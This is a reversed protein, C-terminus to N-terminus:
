FIAVFVVFFRLFSCLLLFLVVCFLFGVCRKCGQELVWWGLVVFFNVVGNGNGLFEFIINSYYFCSGFLNALFNVLLLFVM